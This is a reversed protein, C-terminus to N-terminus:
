YEYSVMGYFASEVETASSMGSSNFEPHHDDLLNQGVLAVELGRGFRRALRADAVLYKPM